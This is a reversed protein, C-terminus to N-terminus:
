TTVEAVDELELELTQYLEERQEAELFAMENFNVDEFVGEELTITKEM